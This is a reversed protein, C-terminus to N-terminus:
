SKFIMMAIQILGIFFLALTFWVIAKTFRIVKETQEAIKNSQRESEEALLVLLRAMQISQNTHIDSTAIAERKIHKKMDEIISYIEQNMADGNYRPTIEKEIPLKDFHNPCLLLNKEFDRDL